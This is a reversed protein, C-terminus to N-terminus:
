IDFLAFYRIFPHKRVSSFEFIELKERAGEAGAIEMFFIIKRFPADSAIRGSFVKKSTGGKGISGSLSM